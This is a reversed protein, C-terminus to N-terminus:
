FKKFFRIFKIEEKLYSKKKGSLIENYGFNEIRSDAETNNLGNESTNFKNFLEEKSLKFVHM